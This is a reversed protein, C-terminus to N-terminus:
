RHLRLQLDVHIPLVIWISSPYCRCLCPTQRLPRFQAHGCITATWSSPLPRGCPYIPTQMTLLVQGLSLTSSIRVDLCPVPVVLRFPCGCLGFTRLIDMKVIKIPVDRARPLLISFNLFPMTILTHVKCSSLTNIYRDL